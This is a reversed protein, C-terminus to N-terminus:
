LVTQSFRCNKGREKTVIKGYKRKGMRCNRNVAQRDRALSFDDSTNRHMFQDLQERYEGTDSCDSESAAIGMSGM